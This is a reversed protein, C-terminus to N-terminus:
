RRKTVTLMAKASSVGAQDTGSYLARITHRGAKLLPLKIAGAGRVLRVMAIRKTGDRLSVTGGPDSVGGVSVRVSATVRKTVTTRTTSMSLVTTSALRDVSVPVSSSSGPRYGSATATVAVSISRGADAPTLRYSSSTTASGVPGGDRLWQYVFRPDAADWSGPEARLYQGSVATGSVSPRTLNQIVPQQRVAVRTSVTRGDLRGALSATVTVHVDRDGDADVLRYTRSRAGDIEVGDRFWQYTLGYSATPSWIVSPATLTDGVVAPDPALTPTPATPADGPEIIVRDSTAAASPRGASTATEVVQLAKGVDDATLRRTAATAGNIAVGDRLWQYRLSPSGPWEGPVVTLTEGFQATGEIQPPTIPAPADGTVGVIANSTSVAAQYGDLRGTARVTIYRGLDSGTLIYSEETAGSIASATGGETTARYWQYTTTSVAPDFSPASLRLDTGVKGNGTITVPTVTRPPDVVVVDRWPSAGLSKGNTDLAVVRWQSTGAAMVKPPAWSSARTSVTEALDSTGPRRREYRYSTARMDPQWSFLAGSPPVMQGPAPTTPSPSLGEIRFGRQVTWEGARGAADVRRVRWTYPVDATLPESPAWSSHVTRDGDVLTPGAYVEVDYSKAFDVPEWSLTQDQGLPGNEPPTTQTPSPSRKVFSQWSSWAGQQMRADYGEVYAAVRWYVPGEPYTTAFSTFTTQDVVQTEIRGADSPLVSTQVVYEVADHEAPTTTDSGIQVGPDDLRGLASGWRLTVDDAVVAGDAPALPLPAVSEKAFAHTPRGGSDVCRSAKCPVVRWFYASGAQSDLFSATPTWMPTTVTVSALPAHPNTGAADNTFFLRYSTAGPVPDWTLVPTQRLQDCQDPVTDTCSDQSVGIGYTAVGSTSAAQGTVVADGGLEGVGPTPPTYSFSSLDQDSLVTPVALRGSREDLAEVRWFYDGASAPACLRTTSGPALTTHMTLSSMCIQRRNEDYLYVRYGSAREIPDWEFFFPVDPDTQGLPYVPVPQDPWARTFRWPTDPWPSPRGSANVPRVQWYFDDNLLGSPPSYRTGTIGQRQHDVSLFNRDTDVRLEYTAAGLRPEWDLVVDTLYVDAAVDKDFVDDPATREVPSLAGVGYRRTESWATAYGSGLQAQVRWYYTGVEPYGVLYAATTEQTRTTILEPDTFAEDLSTQVTYSTAGAVPEWSFRPTRPPVFVRDAEPQVPVPAARRQPVFSGSTWDSRDSGMRARVRWWLEGTPLEVVPVYRANVTSVNLLTSAFDAAKSVQVDYDAAGTVRDWSLVPIAADSAALGSPASIAAAPASGLAVLGTAVVLAALFASLGRSARRLPRRHHRM